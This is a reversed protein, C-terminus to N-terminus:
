HTFHTSKCNCKFTNDYPYSLVPFACSYTSNPAFKEQISEFPSVIYNDVSNAKHYTSRVLCFQVFCLAGIALLLILVCITYFRLASVSNDNLEFPLQLTQTDSVEPSVDINEVAEVQTKAM